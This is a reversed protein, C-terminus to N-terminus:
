VSLLITWADLTSRWTKALYAPDPSHCDWATYVIKSWGCKCIGSVWIPKVRDDSGVQCTNPWLSTLAWVIVVCHLARVPFSCWPGWPNQISKCHPSTIKHRQGPFHDSPPSPSVRMPLSSTGWSQCLPPSSIPYLIVPNSTDQKKVPFITFNHSVGSMCFIVFLLISYNVGICDIGQEM